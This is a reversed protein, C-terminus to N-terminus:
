PTAENAAAAIMADLDGQLRGEHRRLQRAFGEAFASGSPCAAEFRERAERVHSLLVSLAGFEGDRDTLRALSM